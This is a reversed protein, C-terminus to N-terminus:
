SEVLHTYSGVDEDCEPYMVYHQILFIVDFGITILAILVKASNGKAGGWDNMNVVDGFLQVFSLIGGTLDLLVSKENWGVTSKRQHNLFAQPVYKGVTIFVKVTGLVYLLGLIDGGTVAIFLLCFVVTCVLFAQVRKSPPRTRFSDYYGVQALTLAAASLAHLAFAVDNSQVTISGSM